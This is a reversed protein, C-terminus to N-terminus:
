HPWNKNTITIKRQGTQNIHGNNEFETFRRSLTEPTTGLYSALNKRSMPLEFTNSGANESLDLLYQWIRDNISETTIAATQKESHSLRKTVEALVHLSITPYQLLLHQVDSRSITCIESRQKAQAYSDHKTSAFLNLEGIFDGPRLIRVLQEKGTDSLRFIKVEGKHIIYLHDSTDGSKHIFQGRNYTRMHATKAIASLEHPGLHNFIPVRAVCLTHAKYDTDM